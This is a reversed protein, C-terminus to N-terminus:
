QPSAMDLSVLQPLIEHFDLPTECSVNKLLRAALAPTIRGHTYVEAVDKLTFKAEYYDKAWSIWEKPTDHFQTLLWSGGDDHGARPPNKLRTVVWPGTPLRYTCLTVEDKEMDPLDLYALLSDPVGDYIGPWPSQNKRAYPSIKSEHDFVKIIVGAPGFVGLAYDGSGNDLRVLDVGPSVGPSFTYYCIDPTERCMVVDLAALTRSIRHLEPISPSENWDMKPDGMRKSSIQRLPM